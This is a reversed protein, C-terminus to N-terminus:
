GVPPTIPLTCWISKGAGTPRVGWASALQSVLHLGRGNPAAPDFGLVRPRSTASDSVDVVIRNGDLRVRCRMPAAGYRV